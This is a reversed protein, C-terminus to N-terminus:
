KWMVEGQHEREGNLARERAYGRPKNFAHFELKIIKNRKAENGPGEDGQEINARMTGTCAKGKVGEIKKKQQPGRAARLPPAPSTTQKGTKPEICGRANPKKPREDKKIGTDDEKTRTTKKKEL